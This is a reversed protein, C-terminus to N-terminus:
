PMVTHQLSFTGDASAVFCLQELKMLEVGVVTGQLPDLKDYISANMALLQWKAARLSKFLPYMGTTDPMLLRKLVVVYALLLLLQVPGYLVSALITPAWSGLYM